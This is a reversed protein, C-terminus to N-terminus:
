AFSLYAPASNGAGDSSIFPITIDGDSSIKIPKGGWLLASQTATSRAGLQNGVNTHSEIMAGFAIVAKNDFIIAGDISAAELFIKKKRESHAKHGMKISGTSKSLMQRAKDYSATRPNLISAKNVIHSTLNHNPDYVLLAGHRKYSLDFMVEFLNCGVWYDDLIDVITNKFTYVDYIYWEGKRWSALLGSSNLIIVDGKRTVHVSVEGKALNSYIPHLFEPHYKYQKTDEIDDWLIQGYDLFKLDKDIRIYTHQSAALQDVIKQIESETIDVTGKGESIILNFSVSDNEYTRYRITELYCFLKKWDVNKYQRGLWLMAMKQKVLRLADPSPPDKLGAYWDGLRKRIEQLLNMSQPTLVRTTHFEASQGNLNLSYSNEGVGSSYWQPVVEIITKFLQEELNPM